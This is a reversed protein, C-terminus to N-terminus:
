TPVASLVAAAFAAPSDEQLFHGGRLTVHSWVSSGEKLIVQGILDASPMVFASPHIEPQKDKIRYLAM